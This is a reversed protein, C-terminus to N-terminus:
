SAFMDSYKIEMLMSGKSSPPYKAVLETREPRIAWPRVIASVNSIASSTARFIISDQISCLSGRGLSNTAVEFEWILNLVFIGTGNSFHCLNWRQFWDIDNAFQSFSAEDKVAMGFTAVFDPIIGRGVSSGNDRVVRPFIDMFPSKMGDDLLRTNGRFFKNM